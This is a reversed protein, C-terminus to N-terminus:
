NLRKEYWLSRMRVQFGGSRYLALAEKNEDDVTLDIPGAGRRELYSLGAMLVEKGVGQGRYDPDVGLMLIRGKRDGVEERSGPYIRTWCYGIVTEGDCALIVDEPSCNPLTIRYVIEEVINPNFGWTNAFSRNQIHALKDEEGTKMHRCHPCTVGRKALRTDSVDLRLELYRRILRFNMKAVLKRAMLSGEPINIHVREVGLERARNIGREVLERAVVEEACESSVFCSLVVRGITLETTVDMYGVIDGAERAIFLDNEPAYHPRGLGEIVDQGGAFSSRKGALGEEAVLRALSNFDEPRYNGITQTVNRVGFEYYWGSL